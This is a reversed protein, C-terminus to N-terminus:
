EGPENDKPRRRALPRHHKAKHKRSKYEDLNIEDKIELGREGALAEVHHTFEHLLLKKLRHRMREPSYDICSKCISGYYINIYRGLADRHYEGMIYLDDDIASEHMVTDPLLNVGGNLGNFFPQPIEECIEDLMTGIEEFTYM